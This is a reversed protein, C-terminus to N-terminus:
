RNKHRARREAKRRAKRRARYSGGPESDRTPPSFSALYAELREPPVETLGTGGSDPVDRGYELPQTRGLAVCQPCPWSSSIVTQGTQPNTHGHLVPVNEPDIGSM